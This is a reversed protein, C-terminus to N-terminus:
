GLADVSCQAASSEIPTQLGALQTRTPLGVGECKGTRGPEPPGGQFATVLHSRRAPNNAGRLSWAASQAAPRGREVRHRGSPARQGRRRRAGCLPACTPSAAAACGCPRRAQGRSARGGRHRRRRSPAARPSRPARTPMIQRAAVGGAPCCDPLLVGVRPRRHGAWGVGGTRATTTGPPARLRTTRHQISKSKLVRGPNSGSRYIM